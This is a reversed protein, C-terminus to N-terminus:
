YFRKGRAYFERVDARTPFSYYSKENDPNPILKGEGKEILDVSEILADMGLRKTRLILEEQTMSGITVEKQVVIPGSDIGEDVLFVSVGTTAEGNKLVWFTPMLGRYKPLLASHLNVTGRPPIDLLGRKFLQNGAISMLLDPRSARIAALSADSNISGTVEVLPVGRKRLVAPVDAGKLKRALYRLSFRAFFRPGFTRLTKWSKRLISERRGFPSVDSVVAGVVQSHSPFHDLLYDISAPLYFVDNQTILLVRM